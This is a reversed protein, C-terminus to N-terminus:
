IRKLAKSVANICCGFMPAIERLLLNPNQSVIERLKEPDIKMFWAKPTPKVYDPRAQKEWAYITLRAIDFKRSTASVSHTQRYSLM